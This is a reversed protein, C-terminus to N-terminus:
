IRLLAQMMEDITQIMRANASYAQEILLLRQLEADSDVGEQLETEALGAQRSTAFSLEQELSLSQRGVMSVLSAAHDAFDRETAGLGGSLMSGSTDLASKLDNLRVANGAPGPAAAGLGDRLRWVEGGQAPDAAANVAIRGAIGIENTADFVAGADTFLGPDGPARTADVGPDQFREVLNRALADAQAQAEVARADRFEFLAALRGGAVPGRNGSTDIPVGNIQLGSLLGNSLTMHPAIVNARTFSLEAPSGDLLTAGGPTFIAVNGNDRPALRLPVFEALQDIVRQRQDQISATPHGANRATTIQANLAQIQGLLTNMDTVAEAIRGDATTREGQIHASITNFMDALQGASQVAHTLRVQEEPKASADVLSAEFATVRATLSGPDDPTGVERALRTAFDSLTGTYAMASDALRRENLLGTDVRRTVGIVTVGGARGDGEAALEIGRAAYGDTLVNALNTSVVGAARSSAMLGSLANALASSISM